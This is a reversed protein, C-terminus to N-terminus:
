CENGQPDGEAGSVCGPPGGGRSDTHGCQGRQQRGRRPGREAPQGGAHLVWEDQNKAQEDQEYTDAGEAGHGAGNRHGQGKAEQPEGPDLEGGEEHRGDDDGRDHQGTLSRGGDPTAGNQDHQDTWRGDPAGGCRKPPGVESVQQRVRRDHLALGGAQDGEDDDADDGDHEEGEHREDHAGVLAAIVAWSVQRISTM